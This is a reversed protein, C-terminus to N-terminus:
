FFPWLSRWSKIEAAVFIKAISSAVSPQQAECASRLHEIWRQLLGVKRDFEHYAREHRAWFFWFDQHKTKPGPQLLSAKTFENQAPRSFTVEPKARWEFHEHAELVNLFKVQASFSMKAWSQPPRLGQVWWPWPLFINKLQANLFPRSGEYALGEDVLNRSRPRSSAIVAATALAASM